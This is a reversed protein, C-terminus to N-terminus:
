ASTLDLHEESFGNVIREIQAREVEDQTGDAFAALICICIIARHEQESM